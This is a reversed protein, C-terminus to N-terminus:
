SSPSGHHDASFDCGGRYFSELNRRSRRPTGAGRNVKATSDRPSKTTGETAIESVHKVRADKKLRELEEERVQDQRAQGSLQLQETVEAGLLNELEIGTDTHDDLDQAMPARHVAPDNQLAQSRCNKKCM